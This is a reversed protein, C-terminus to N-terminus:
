CQAIRAAIGDVDIHDAEVASVAALVERLRKSTARAAAEAYFASARQERALSEAIDLCWEGAASSPELLDPPKPVGRLKSFVSCHEAEVASLRKYASALHANGTQRCVAAYFRANDREIGIATDLDNREADTLTVDNIDAPYEETPVFYEASAGCFPCRSPAETGLYTEGCVRCRLLKVTAERHM